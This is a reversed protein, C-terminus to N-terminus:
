VVLVYQRDTGTLTAPIATDFTALIADHRAALNVLHMDTVQNRGVLGITDIAPDALSTDDALFRHGPLSRLQSLVTLVEQALIQRGAVHPNLMLRIFGTETMSTTAWLNINGFWQQARAHHVHQPNTLAVLLNVDLLYLM